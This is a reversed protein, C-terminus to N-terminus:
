LERNHFPIVNGIRSTTNPWDYHVTGTPWDSCVASTPLLSRTSFSSNSLHPMSSRCYHLTNSFYDTKYVQFCTLM